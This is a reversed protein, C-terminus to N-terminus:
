CLRELIRCCRNIDNLAAAASIGLWRASMSAFVSTAAAISFSALAKELGATLAQTGLVDHIEFLVAILGVGSAIKGLARLLSVGRYADRAQDFQTDELADLRDAPEASATAGVIAGIWTSPVIAGLRRLSEFDRAGVLRQLTSEMPNFLVPRVWWVRWGIMAALAIVGLGLAAQVWQLWGM